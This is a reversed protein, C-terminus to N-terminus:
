VMVIFVDQLVRRQAHPRSAHMSGGPYMVRICEQRTFLGGYSLITVKPRSITHRAVFEHEEQKIMIYYRLGEYGSEM